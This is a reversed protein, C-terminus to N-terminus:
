TRQARDWYGPDGSLPCFARLHTARRRGTEISLSGLPHWCRVQVARITRHIVFLERGLITTWPPSAWDFSRRTIYPPEIKLM